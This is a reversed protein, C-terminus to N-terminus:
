SYCHHEGLWTIRSEPGLVVNERSCNCCEELQTVTTGPPVVLVVEMDLLVGHVTGKMVLDWFRSNRVM